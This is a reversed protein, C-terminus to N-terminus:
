RMTGIILGLIIVTTGVIGKISLEEGAFIRSTIRGLAPSLATVLVTVSVGVVDLAYLFLPMAIGYSTAGTFVSAYVARRTVNRLQKWTLALLIPLLLTMRLLALSLPTTYDLAYKNVVSGFSWALASTSTAVLGKPNYKGTKAERAVLWIGTLALLSGAVLKWTLEEGFLLAALLQSVLIYTYGITVAKGGGIERIAYIYAVDGIGTGITGAAFVALWGILSTPALLPEGLLLIILGTVPIAVMVRITNFVVANANEGVGLKIVAPALGWILSAVIAAILGPDEM